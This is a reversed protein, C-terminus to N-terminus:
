AYVIEGGDLLRDWAHKFASKAEFPPKGNLKIRIEKKVGPKGPPNKPLQKPDHGLNAICALIAKEQERLQQPPKAAKTSSPSLPGQNSQDPTSLFRRHYHKEAWQDFSVLTIYTFVPNSLAQDVHLKSEGGNNLEDKIACRYAFAEEETKVLKTLADRLREVETPPGELEARSLEAEFGERIEQMHEDLDFYYDAAEEEAIESPDECNAQMELPGSILDLLMAVAEDVTVSTRTRSQVLLFSLNDNSSM